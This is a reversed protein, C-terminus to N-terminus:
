RTWRVGFPTFTRFNRTVDQPTNVNLLCVILTALRISNATSNEPRGRLRTVPSTEGDRDSFPWLRGTVSCRGGAQPCCPTGEFLPINVVTNMNQDHQVRHKGGTAKPETKLM